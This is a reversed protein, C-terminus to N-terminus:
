ENPTGAKTAVMEIFDMVQRAVIEPGEGEFDHGMGDIEIRRAGPVRAAIDRGQEPPLLTGARGHIVLTPVTVAEIGALAPALAEM